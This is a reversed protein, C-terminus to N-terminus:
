PEERAQPIREALVEDIIGIRNECLGDPDPHDGADAAFAARLTRLFDDSYTQYLALTEARSVAPMPSGRRVKSLIEELPARKFDIMCTLRNCQMEGDDGYLTSKPCGHELWLFM